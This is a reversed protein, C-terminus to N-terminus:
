IYIALQKRYHTALDSGSGLLGFVTIMAKRAADDHWHKDRKVMGLFLDLAEEHRGQLALCCGLGYLADPDEPEEALRKRWTAEGDGCAKRFGLAGRLRVAERYESAEEGIRDLHEAAVTEDGLALAARARLLHALTNEADQALTADILAAAASADGAELREQAAELGGGSAEKDARKVHPDLFARVENEPLAGMFGDVVKGDVVLHVTPISRIQFATALTPNEDTDVKAVLFAGEYEEALKELTPGLVQCPGCWSAWFDVLVPVQRSRELVAQEFDRDTVQIVFSSTM